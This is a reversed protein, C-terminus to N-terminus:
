LSFTFFKYWMVKVQPFKDRFQTLLTVAVERIHDERQCLSKILFCTHANLISNRVTAENGIESIRQEQTWILFDLLHNSAVFCYPM